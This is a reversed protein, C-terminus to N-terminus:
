PIKATKPAKGPTKVTIVLYNTHNQTGNQGTKLQKRITVIPIKVM